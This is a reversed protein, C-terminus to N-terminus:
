ETRQPSLVRQALGNMGESLAPDAAMAQIRARAFDLRGAGKVRLLEVLIRSKNWEDPSDLWGIIPERPMEQGVILLSVAASMRVSVDADTLLNALVSLNMPLDQESGEALCVAAERRAETDAEAALARYFEQSFTAGIKRVADLIHTPKLLDESQRPSVPEPRLSLALEDWDGSISELSTIADYQAGIEAQSQSSRFGAGRRRQEDNRADVYLGVLQPLAERAKLEGLAWVISARSLGSELGLARILHPM